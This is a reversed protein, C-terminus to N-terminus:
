NGTIHAKKRLETLYAEENPDKGGKQKGLDEARFVTEAAYDDNVQRQKCIALYEVGRPTVRTGTTNGKAKEILPKWEPPMAPLLVRGLEIISVDRYGAAFVKSTDCGPFKARSAEAEAKRKGTIKGRKSEPIVFVVQQLFYETTVPKEKAGGLRQALDAGNSKAQAFRAGVARPWSMQIAIYAKFHPAGVGAHDLIQSLQKVSMKNNGAFRAFAADVEDTSVSMQLRAIERRKLEEDILQQRAMGSLNGKQHQLRLFATRRAIDATTIAVNDVM